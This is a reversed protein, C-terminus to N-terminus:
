SSMYEKTHPFSLEESRSVSVAQTRPGDLEDVDRVGRLEGLGDGEADRGGDGVDVSQLLRHLHLLGISQLIHVGVRELHVSM